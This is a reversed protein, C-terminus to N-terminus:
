KLDKHLVLPWKWNQYVAQVLGTALIMGWVGFHFYGVFIFLLFLAALASIIGAKFFPVENKTLLFGAAMTHNNELFSFLLAVGLMAQPLLPTKSKILLLAWDGLFIISIASVIYAMVMAYVAHKYVERVRALDGEVRWQFVKPLYVKYYVNGLAAAVGILQMSIGYSAIADLPLYLAGIFTASKVIIFAGISTIGIKVANPYIQRIIYKYDYSDVSQLCNRITKTYFSRHSLYRIIVISCAQALVIAILGQGFLVLVAAVLLYVLNGILVIQNYRKVLGLGQLLADYYLTYINYTNLLCLIVWAIYVETRDGTYSKLILNLYATGAFLLIILLLVAMRSYFWRMAVVAGKLLSYNVTSESCSIDVRQFGNVKLENVGSFIYAINRTFSISFGFDLLTSLSTIALFITWIGVTETPLFRLILPFLLVGAGIKFITALGSWIIDTKGIHALGTKVM